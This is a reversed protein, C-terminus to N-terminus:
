CARLRQRETSRSTFNKVLTNGIIILGECLFIDDSQGPLNQHAHGTEMLVVYNMQVKLHTKPMTSHAHEHKCTSWLSAVSMKKVSKLVTKNYSLSRLVFYKKMNKQKKRDSTNNLTEKWECEYHRRWGWFMRNVLAWGRPSMRMTSKPKDRRTSLTVSTRSIRPVGSYTPSDSMGWKCVEFGGMCPM